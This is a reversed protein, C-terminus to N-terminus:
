PTVRDGREAWLGRVRVLDAPTDIDELVGPDDVEVAHSPYRALIRRLSQDGSLRLLESVMESSFGIPLGKLGRHQAVSVAHQPLAAAVARITAPRVLPMDAPLIVWGPATARAAVGAAISEGLGQGAQLASQGVIVLDRRAVLRAAEEVLGESVVVVVPLRSSLAHRLTHALVSEMGLTAALKAETPHFRTGQGAGLVVVAPHTKM